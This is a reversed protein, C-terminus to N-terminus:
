GIQSRIEESKFRKYGWYALYLNISLLTMGLLNNEPFWVRAVISGILGLFQIGLISMWQKYSLLKSGLLAILPALLSTAMHLHSHWTVALTAALNVLLALNFQQDTKNKSWTRLAWFTTILMGTIAVAWALWSPSIQELNLALSRWNMMALPNTTALNQPYLVLLKFWTIPWAWGALM